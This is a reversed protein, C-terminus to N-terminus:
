LTSTFTLDPNIASLFAICSAHLEKLIDGTFLEIEQQPFALVWSSDLNTLYSNIYGQPAGAKEGLATSYNVVLKDTKFPTQTDASTAIFSPTDILIM